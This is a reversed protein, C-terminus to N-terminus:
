QSITRPSKQNYWKIFEVVTKYALEIVDKGFHQIYQFDKNNWDFDPSIATYLSVESDSYRSFKITVGHVLMTSIKEVVPMLWNWSTKYYELHNITMPTTAGPRWSFTEKRWDYGMFEHILENDTKM